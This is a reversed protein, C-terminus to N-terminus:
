QAAPRMADGRLLAGSAQIQTTGDSVRLVLQGNDQMEASGLWTNGGSTMVVQTLKLRPNRADWSWEFCGDVADYTDLPTLDIDHGRFAGQASMNSLLDLGTGSTKLTGEADMAGARWPLGALKGSIQYQPERQALNVVAAGTFAAGQMQGQLDALRVEDGDWLVRAKLNTFATDGLDLADVQITGDARMARMWGPEPVRGLNLAYNLFSGRHLTPSLLKELREGEARTVSIRFRHPREAAAEYRYEGRAAIDGVSFNLRKMAVGAGDISADASILHLPQTFAPFHIDANRLRIEGSWAATRNSYRLNGSWIGSTAQGLLPVGAVSTQRRLSAISMGESALSAEFDQSITDYSARLSATEDAINTIAAPALTVSSGAFQVDAAPIKLPPTGAITLTSDAIRVEGDMRAVGEPVSYGVAGEATGDFKLDGPVNLGLNRALTVLPPMPLRSFIATVAWRPRGLYDAVRYRLDIPPQEGATTARIEIVQGQADITGGVSLPWASGGPPPQNWAHVDDMMLRGTTGVRALPGALHADGWIHGHLGSEYGRFLTVMDGLESKELKVDLTISGDKHRLERPRWQGRAVFWGFGRSPRDTRAPQGRMALTWPEDARAPPWLDVDTGLLYFISKTDGFKFNVRGEIMHISPFAARRQAGPGPAEQHLMGQNLPGQNLLSAFNWRVGHEVSDVRTLNISANELDVSAFELRGGFLSSIRPRARLLDIYATVEAGITPDEGIYVHDITFGPLPLLQFRVQGMHIKRGLASELANRIPEEFRAASIRPVGWAAFLLLLAASLIVRPWRFWRRM